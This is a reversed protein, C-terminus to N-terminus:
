GIIYYKTNLHLYNRQSNPVELKGHNLNEENM